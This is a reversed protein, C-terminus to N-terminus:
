WSAGVYAKISNNSTFAITGASSRYIGTDTDSTFSYAPTAQTGDALRIVTSGIINGDFTAAGTTRFTGSVDLNHSPSGNNIGVQGDGGVHFRTNLSALASGAGVSTPATQIRFYTGGENGNGKMFVRIGATNNAGAADIYSNNAATNPDNSGDYKINSSFVVGEHFGTNQIINKNRSTSDGWQIDGIVNLKSEPSTTNIGVNGSSNIRMKESANTYPDTLGSNDTTGTYFRFGGTSAVNNVFDLYNNNLGILGETIDGDAKFWIQPVDGEENNDEDAQIILRADGSNGASIHLLGDPSTTGIGVNGNQDVVMQQTLTKTGSPTTYFELRTGGNAGTYNQTAEAIIAAGDYFATGDSGAFLLKGL